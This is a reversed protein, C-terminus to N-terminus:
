FRGDSTLHAPATEKAKKAMGLNVSLAAARLLTRKEFQVVVQHRQKENVLKQQTCLVSRCGRWRRFGSDAIM